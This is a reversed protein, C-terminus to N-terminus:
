WRIHTIIEASGREVYAAAASGLPSPFLEQKREAPPELSRPTLGCRRQRPRVLLEPGCISISSKIYHRKATCFRSCAREGGKIQLRSGHGSYGMSISHSMRCPTTVRATLLTILYNEAAKQCQFQEPLHKFIVDKISELADTRCRCIHM